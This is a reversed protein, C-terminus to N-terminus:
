RGKGPPLYRYLRLQKKKRANHYQWSLLKWREEPIGLVKGTLPANSSREDLFVYLAGCQRSYRALLDKLVSIKVTDDKFKLSTVGLVKLGSYYRYRRVEYWDAIALPRTFLAADRKAISCNYRVHNEYPNYHLAKVLCAVALGFVVCWPLLRFIKGPIQPFWKCLGELKFCFYATAILGPYLLISAYRSSIIQIATRWGIMFLLATILIWYLATHKKWHFFLASMLGLIACVAIPEFLIRPISQFLVETM